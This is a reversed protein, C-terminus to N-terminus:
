EDLKKKTKNKKSKKVYKDVYKEFFIPTDIPLGKSAKGNEWFQKKFKGDEIIIVNGDLKNNKWIGM